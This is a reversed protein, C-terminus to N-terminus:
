QQSETVTSGSVGQSVNFYIFVAPSQPAVGVTVNVTDSTSVNNTSDCTVQFAQSAASGAALGGSAWFQTLWATVKNTISTWLTPGNNQFPAFQTLSRLNAEIYIMTRRVSLFQNVTVNSLTNSGWIVIGAGQLFKLANIQANNLTGVDSQSMNRELSLAALSATAGATPQAVGYVADMNSMVGMVSGCPPVVRSAGAISATPDNIVLNPAYVAAYSSAPLSDTFSLIASDTAAPVSSPPDCLVVSDQTLRNSTVYTIFTGLCGTDTIGPLNIILPQDLADLISTAAELQGTTAVAGDVGATSNSGSGVPITQPVPANGPSGLSGQLDTVTIYASGARPNNIQSAFYNAAGVTMSLNNWREKVNNISTGGQAVVLNFTSDTNTSTILFLNNGWVGPTVATVGITAAPTSDLLTAGSAVSGSGVVRLVYCENGQNLFYTYVGLALASPAVSQSFNGYLNTFQNWSSILTPVTPGQNHWGIFCATFSTVATSGVAFVPPIITETVYVGPAQDLSM